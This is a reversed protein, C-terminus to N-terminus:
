SNKEFTFQASSELTVDCATVPFCTIHGKSYCHDLREQAVKVTM